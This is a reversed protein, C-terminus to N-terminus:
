QRISIKTIKLPYLQFAKALYSCYLEPGLTPNPNIYIVTNTFFLSHINQKRWFLLVRNKQCKFPKYFYEHLIGSTFPPSVAPWGTGNKRQWRSSKPLPHKFVHSIL